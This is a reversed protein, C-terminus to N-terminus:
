RTRQQRYVSERAEWTERWRKKAKAVKREHAILGILALGGLGVWGWIFWISLPLALVALAIAAKETM